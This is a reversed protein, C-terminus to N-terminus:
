GRNWSGPEGSQWGQRGHESRGQRYEPTTEYDYQGRYDGSRNGYNEYEYRGGQMGQQYQERNRMGQGGQNWEEQRRHPEGGQEYRQNRNEYENNYRAM